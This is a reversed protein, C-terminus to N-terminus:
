TAPRRAPKVDFWGLGACGCIIGDIDSADPPVGTGRCQPCVEASPPQIPRLPRLEPITISARANAVHILDADKTPDLRRDAGGDLDFDYYTMGDVSLGVVADWLRCIPYSNTRKAARWVTWEGAAKPEHALYNAILRVLADAVM